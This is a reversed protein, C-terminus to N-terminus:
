LRASALMRGSDWTGRVRAAGDAPAKFAPLGVPAVAVWAALERAHGELFPLAYSCSMSPTVLVVPPQAGVARLLQALFPGREPPPLPAGGTAGHGPLDVAVARYTGAAALM